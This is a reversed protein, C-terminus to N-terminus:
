NICLFNMVYKLFLLKNSILDKIVAESMSWNM